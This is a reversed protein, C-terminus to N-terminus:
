RKRPPTVRGRPVPARAGRRGRGAGDGEEIWRLAAAVDRGLRSIAAAERLLANNVELEVYEIGAATAHRRASYILGALGSYPENYRVRYGARRLASGLRHALRPYADFLVGVDFDRRVGNMEPTFSHLALLRPRAAGPRNAARALMREVAAHYPEYFAAIRRRREAASVRANGPVPIGDSVGLILSPDRVDRNCDVVLRSWRSAVWPAGLRGAVDRQLAHAGIDWGIHDQLSRRPLGLARYPRPV